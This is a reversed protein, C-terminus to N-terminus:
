LKGRYAVIHGTILAANGRRAGILGTRVVDGKGLKKRQRRLQQWDGNGGARMAARGTVANVGGARASVVVKRRNQAAASFFLFRRCYFSAVLLPILSILAKKM